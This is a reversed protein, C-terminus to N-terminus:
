GRIGIKTCTVEVKGCSVNFIMKKRIPYGRRKEFPVMKLFNEPWIKEINGYSIYWINEAFFVRKM